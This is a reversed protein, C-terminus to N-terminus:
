LKIEFYERTSMKLGLRKLNTYTGFKTPIRVISCKHDRVSELIVKEYIRRRLKELDYKDRFILEEVTAETTSIKVMCFAIILDDKGTFDKKDEDFAVFFLYGSGSLDVFTKAACVVDSIVKSVSNSAGVPNTLQSIQLKRSESLENLRDLKIRM